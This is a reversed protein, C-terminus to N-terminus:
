QRRLAVGLRTEGGCSQQCFRASPHIIIIRGRPPIPICLLNLAQARLPTSTRTWDPASIGAKEDRRVYPRFLAEKEQLIAVQRFLVMFQTKPQLAVLRKDGPDCYIREFVLRIMDSREETSAHDWATALTELLSAAEALRTQEPVHLSALKRETAMKEKRCETESIEVAHYSRRLRRLKERLRKQERLIKEREDQCSLLDAVRDQWVPPLRLNRIIPGIQSELADERVRTQPAPCDIARKHATCRYYKHGSCFDGKM